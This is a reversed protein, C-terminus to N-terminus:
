ILNFIIFPSRGKLTHTQTQLLQMVNHNIIMKIIKYCLQSRTIYIFSQEVRITKNPAISLNSTVRRDLM